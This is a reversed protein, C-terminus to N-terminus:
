VNLADRVAYTHFQGGGDDALCVSNSIVVAARKGKMRSVGTGKGAQYHMCCLLQCHVYSSKVCSATPKLTRESLTKSRVGTRVGSM